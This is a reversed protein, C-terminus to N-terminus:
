HSADAADDGADTPADRCVGEICSLGGGCDSSRTCPANTKGNPADVGGCGPERGFGLAM